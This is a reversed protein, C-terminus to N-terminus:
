QKKDVDVIEMSCLHNRLVFATEEVILVVLLSTTQVVGLLPIAHKNGLLSYRLNPMANCNCAAVLLP